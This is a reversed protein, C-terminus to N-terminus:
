EVLLKRVSTCVAHYAEIDSADTLTCGFNQMCTQETQKRLLEFNM